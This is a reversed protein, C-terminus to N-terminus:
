MLYTPLEDTEDSEAQEIAINDDLPISSVLDQKRSVIAYLEDPIVIDDFLEKFLELIIVGVKMSPINCYEFLDYVTFIFDMSSVINDIINTSLGHCLVGSADFMRWSCQGSLFLKTEGLANKLADMDEKNTQRSRVKGEIQNPVSDFVPYEVPCSVGNCKCKKHCFSCCAHKPQIPCIGEDFDKLLAVRVCSNLGNSIAKKVDKECTILHRGQFVTINYSPKHDRGARGAEQLHSTLNKSPGFHVVYRM